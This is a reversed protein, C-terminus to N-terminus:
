TTGLKALKVSGIIMRNLHHVILEKTIGNSISFIGTSAQFGAFDIETKQSLAGVSTSLLAFIHQSYKSSDCLSRSAIFLSNSNKM